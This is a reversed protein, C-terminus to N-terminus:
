APAKLTEVAARLASLSEPNELQGLNAPARGNLIDRAATEATKGNRTRPLDAVSLVHRPVHRPTCAKRIAARLRDGLDPTQAKPVVFLVLEVDGDRDLGAVIASSVLDDPLARYIEGAGIRVGGPNLTADSRGIVEYGQPHRIVHDGQTWVGPIAKFYAARYRSGDDGWFGIPRSPFPNRCVLEGMGEAAEGTAPDIVQVDMGLGPVQLQGAYVPAAPNGLLFCSIIDTGGSISALHVPKLTMVYRFNAESLPSGTSLVCRLASLDLGEARFGHTRLTDIYKASTGFHTVKLDEAMQWLREAGPHFPSGDYQVLTVGSALASAWWNWMMWSATSFYFLRDGDKLDSHLRHEKVHQLLTGGIGHTICKPRGTTGSSFLIFLPANFNMRTFRPEAAGELPTLIVPALGLAAGVETAKARLDHTKGKYDYDPSALFVRPTVQAFRDVVSATGFDPSCSAWVAGLSATALMWIVAEPTNAVMAAVRDGPGVGQAVLVEQAVGVLGRLEDRSIVRDPGSEPRYILAPQPGKRLCNEAYNLRAQPFFRATVIDSGERAPGTLDGIIGYRQWVETWFRPAEEVSWRHLAAYDPVEAFTAVHARFAEMESAEPHAPTWIPAQTM